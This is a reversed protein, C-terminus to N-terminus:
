KVRCVWQEQQTDFRWPHQWRGADNMTWRGDGLHIHMIRLGEQLQGRSYLTPRKGDLEEQLLQSELRLTGPVLDQLRWTDNGLLAQMKQLTLTLDQITFRSMVRDNIVQYNLVQGRSHERWLANLQWQSALRGVNSAVKRLCSLMGSSATDIATERSPTM